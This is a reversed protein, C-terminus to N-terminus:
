PCALDYVQVVAYVHVYGCVSTHECVHIYIYTCIHVYTHKAASSKSRNGKEIRKLADACLYEAGVWESVYLYMCIDVDIHLQIYIYADSPVSQCM